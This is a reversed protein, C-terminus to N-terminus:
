QPAGMHLLRREPGSWRWEAYDGKLHVGGLWRDIGNLEIQDRAGALVARGAETLRCPEAELLPVRANMLRNLYLLFAADGMFAPAREKRQYAHFLSVFEGAGEAVAELIYTETHSLGTDFSPFERLHRQLAAATYPLAPAEDELLREIEEPQPARFAAWARAAYNRQADSVLQRRSWLAACQEPALPGIHVDSQILSVATSQPDLLSLAQILQLQDYLDHEFWLAVDPAALLWADRTEFAAVVKSYSEWGCEAIFKARIDNLEERTFGAPVPGEHLCDLWVLVDGGVGAARIKAAASDGNTVHLM